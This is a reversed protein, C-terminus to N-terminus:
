VLLPFVCVMTPSSVDCSGGGGGGEDDRRAGDADASSRDHVVGASPMSGRVAAYM